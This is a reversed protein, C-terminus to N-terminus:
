ENEKDCIDLQKNFMALIANLRDLPGM